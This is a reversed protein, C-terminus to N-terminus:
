VLAEGECILEEGFIDGLLADGLFLGIRRAGEQVGGGGEVLEGGGVEDDLGDWLDGLELEVDEGLEGLDAGFVGDQCGVGGGDGDRANRSGSGAAVRGVGGVARANDRGM